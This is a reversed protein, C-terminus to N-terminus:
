IIGHGMMLRVISIILFVICLLTGVVALLKNIPNKRYATVGSILGIILFIIGIWNLWGLLPLLGLLAFVFGVIALILSGM